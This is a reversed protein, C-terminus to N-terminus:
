PRHSLLCHHFENSIIAIQWSLLVTGASCEISLLVRLIVETVPDAYAHKEQELVRMLDRMVYKQGGAGAQTIDDNGLRDLDCDDHRLLCSDHM